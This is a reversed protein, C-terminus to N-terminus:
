LLKKIKEILNNKSISIYELDITDGFELGDLDELVVDILIKDKGKDDKKVTILFNLVRADIISYYKDERFIYTDIVFVKEGIDFPIDIKIQTM